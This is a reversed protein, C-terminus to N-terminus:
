INDCLFLNLAKYIFTVSLPFSQLMESALADNYDVVNDAVTQRSEASQHVDNKHHIDQLHAPVAFVCVCM